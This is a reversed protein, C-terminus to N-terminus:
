GRIFGGESNLIQGTIWSAEERTLFAILRAADEPVGIRGMPFKAQLLPKVEETMWGTDTPGPNVANVTIGLRALEASLTQTFASIAGKTAAYALEGPMPGLGQGSTMNIVRGWHRNQAEYRRAWEACILFVARMNVKYHRDLEDAELKEYGDPTSYAANNIVIDPFGLTTTVRDLLQTNADSRSLDLNMYACRVGLRQIESQFREPWEQEAEWFSFFLDNGEKALQKCIAAGIGHEHSVGTVLAIKSGKQKEV